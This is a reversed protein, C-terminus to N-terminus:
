KGVEGKQNTQATQRRPKFRQLRYAKAIANMAGSIFKGSWFGTFNVEPRQGYVMKVNVTKEGEIREKADDALVHRLTSATLPKKQIPPLTEVRVGGNGKAEDM